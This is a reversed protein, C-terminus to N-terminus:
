WLVSLKLSSSIPSNGVFVTLSFVFFLNLFFMREYKLVALFSALVTCRPTIQRLRQIRPPMHRGRRDVYYKMDYEAEDM